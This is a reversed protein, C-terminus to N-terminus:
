VLQTLMVIAMVGMGVDEIVTVTSMPLKIVAGLCACRIKQKHRLSKVVGITGITMLIVTAINTPIPDVNWLYAAGLALEFFPYLWGWLRVRKTVVDYQAYMDVFGKLDILKFTGFTAFFLGMFYRMSDLVSFSGDVYQILVVVLVILILIVALPTYTPKGSVHSM